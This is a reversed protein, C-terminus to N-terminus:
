RRPAYVLEREPVWAGDRWFWTTVLQRGDADFKSSSRVKATQTGGAHNVGDFVLSGDAAREITGDIWGGTANFYWWRLTSTPADWGYITEGSYVVKGSADAVAHENRIFQGGLLPEYTQTDSLGGKPFQAVWTRGCMPALPALESRLAPAPASPRPDLAKCALPAALALALVLQRTNM